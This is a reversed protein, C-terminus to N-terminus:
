KDSSMAPTASFYNNRTEDRWQHRLFNSLMEIMTKNGLVTPHGDHPIAFHGPVFKDMQWRTLDIYSVELEELYTYFESPPIGFPGPGVVVYFKKVKKEALTKKTESLIRAMLRLESDGPVPNLNHFRFINSKLALKALNVLMQREDQFSGKTVVSGKEDVYYYSKQSSWTALEKFLGALRVINHYQLFYLATGENGEIEEPRIQKMHELIEGPYGGRIGYNYVRYEPFKKALFAGMTGEDPVGVGFVFSDGLTLLFKKDNTNNEQPTVRRQYEDITYQLNWLDLGTVTKRIERCTKIIRGRKMCDSPNFEIILDNFDVPTAGPNKPRLHLPLDPPIPPFFGFKANRSFQETKNDFTKENSHFYYPSGNGKLLLGYIVEFTSVMALVLLFGVSFALLRGSLM